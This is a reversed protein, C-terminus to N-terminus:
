GAAGSTTPGSPSEGDDTAAADAEAVQRIADASVEPPLLGSPREGVEDFRDLLEIAREPDGQANAIGASLLLATPEEPDIRLAADLRDVARDYFVGQGIATFVLGETTLAVVNDPEAEILRDFCELGDTLGLAGEADPAGQGATTTTAAASAADSVTNWCTRVPQPLNAEAVASELGQQRLITVMGPPPDSAWFADLEDQAAEADDERLAVSARFVRVDAYGPDAQVVRDFRDKAEDVQGARALAWGSYTLAELDDPREDLLREYCDIEADSDNRLTRCADLRDNFGTAGSIPGGPARTGASQAVVVGAVAAVVLLAAVVALNGKRRWRPVLAADGAQEAAAGEPRGAAAADLAPDLRRLVAALRLTLDDRVADAEEGDLDGAAADEELRALAGALEDREAELAARQRDDM